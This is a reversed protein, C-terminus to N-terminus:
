VQTGAYAQILELLKMFRLDSRYHRGVLQAQRLRRKAFMLM